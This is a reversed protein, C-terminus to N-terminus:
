GIRYLRMDDDQALVVDFGPTNDDIGGIGQWATEQAQTYQWLWIGQWWGQHYSVGRNLLLVYAAGTRGVAERVREDIFRMEVLKEHSTLDRMSTIRAPWPRYANGLLMEKGSMFEPAARLADVEITGVPMNSQM